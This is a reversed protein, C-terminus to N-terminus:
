ILLLSNQLFLPIVSWRLQSEPEPLRTREKLSILLSLIFGPLIFAFLVLISSKFIGPKVNLEDDSSNLHGAFCDVKEVVLQVPRVLLNKMLKSSGARQSVTDSFFSQIGKRVTCSSLLCILLLLFVALSRIGKVMLKGTLYKIQQYM